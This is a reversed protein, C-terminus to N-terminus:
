DLIIRTPNGYIILVKDGEALRPVPGQVVTLLNGNSTEVVYELGTQRTMGEELVAGAVGGVVAGGIVGLANARNGSGIASGAIAGGAAGSAVGVGTNNGTINVDRVNIIEGRVTRNAAGVSGVSYTDPSLNRTCATLALVLILFTLNRM